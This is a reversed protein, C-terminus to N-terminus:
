PNDHQDTGDTEEPEGQPENQKDQEKQPRNVPENRAPRERRNDRKNDQRDDRQDDRRPAFCSQDALITVEELPVAYAPGDEGQIIVLQTIVQTDVVRGKGHTTQVMTNKKPLLDRMERYTDDEYRLCCKLRGCHGSIKSPDLTAKQLKAMRMNVPKLIKLFRKCCCEQGCTEYDGVIKAEDRSGIQRMEIRTQYEKALRKVLDRFDVRGDAIFYYIIREGGFIREAAAIKMPLNMERVAKRCSDLEEQTSENLKQEEHVDQASAFREVEGGAEIVNEAGSDRYYQEVQEDTLRFQGAKYCQPGVIEGMELGRETKVIVKTHVRPLHTENHEFWGMTGMRGYRVLIYKKNKSLKSGKNEANPM